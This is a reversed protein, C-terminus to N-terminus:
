LLLSFFTLIKHSEKENIIITRKLSYPIPKTPRISCRELREYLQVVKFPFISVFSNNIGKMSLSKPDFLYVKTINLAQLDTGIEILFKLLFCVYWQFFLFEKGHLFKKSTIISKAKVTEISHRLPIGRLNTNILATICGIKSLGIWVCPYEICNDLMLAIVDGHSYGEAIFYNALQNTLDEVKIFFSIPINSQKVDYIFM